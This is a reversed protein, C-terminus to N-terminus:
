KAARQKRSKIPAGVMMKAADIDRGRRLWKPTMLHRIAESQYWGPRLVAFFDREPPVEELRPYKAIPGIERMASVLVASKGRRELWFREQGVDYRSGDAMRIIM